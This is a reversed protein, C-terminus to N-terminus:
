SVLPRGDEDTADTAETKPEEANIKAVDDLMALTEPHYYNTMVTEPHTHGALKAVRALPIGSEVLSTVFRHRAMYLVLEPQMGLREKLRTFRCSITHQTWPKGKSNLLLSGSRREKAYERMREMLAPSFFAERQRGTRTGTKHETPQFRAIPLRSDLHRASLTAVEGPRMGTQWMVEVVEKFNADTMTDNQIKLYEDKSMPRQRAKIKWPISVRHMPDIKILGRDRAWRFMSKVIHLTLARSSDGFYKKGKQGAGEYRSMWRIIEEPSVSDLRKSRFAAAFPGLKRTYLKVTSERCHASAGLFAECADAVTMRAAQRETLLGESGMLRHYEAWADKEKESLRIQKSHLTVYWAGRKEWFWPKPQKM